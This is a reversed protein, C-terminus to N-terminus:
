SRRRRISSEGQGAEAEASPGLKRLLAALTTKEPGSLAAFAQEMDRAHEAFLRGILAEGKPTLHAIRARRDEASSRREVLRQAELRDVAATMSGSSILIKRGLTNVPLPGKHLLAELAGFDSLCLGTAEVSRRAHAEQTRAAKWLLLWLHVGRPPASSAKTAKAGM